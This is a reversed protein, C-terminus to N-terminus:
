DIRGFGAAGLLLDSEGQELIPAPQYGLDNALPAAEPATTGSLRTL